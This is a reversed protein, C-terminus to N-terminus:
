TGHIANHKRLPDSLWSLHIDFVKLTRATVLIKSRAQQRASFVVREHWIANNSIVLYRIRRIAAARYCGSAYKFQSYSSFITFGDTCRTIYHFVYKQGFHCGPKDSHHPFAYEYSQPAPADSRNCREFCILSSCLFCSSLWLSPEILESLATKNM